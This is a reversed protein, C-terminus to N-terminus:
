AEPLVAFLDSVPEVAGSGVVTLRYVGSSLAEFEGSYRGGEPRLVQRAAEQGTDVDEAIATLPEALVEAPEVEFSAPEGVAYADDLDLSLGVTPLAGRFAAFNIDLGSMVSSLQVLVPDANQLSAHREAAFMANAEDDLELPTASVRPVTGDGGLDKGEYSRLLEVKGNELRASQATPQTTGVVPRIAYGDRRYAEDQEHEEVADSIERHFALAAAARDADMHEITAEAIRALEGRGDDYCPYIPLLQYVSTLSRLLNSLDLGFPGIKKEFGNALFGLAKLSGRYPTGFTVLLRTDRWGDMCELFYRSIVGGMSHGVLILRAGENGSKERWAKLWARGDRDLKRAAVRNDRRWDYPFEFFNEGPTVDFTAKIRNAVKTYGDIKWLGPILHVDQIVRPATVGDGLDDVDPPDDDLALERIDDGLTLLANLAAGGSIAWVDKGNKQLVSGTIGPLLVIVDRM